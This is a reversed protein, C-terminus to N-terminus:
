AERQSPMRQRADLESDRALGTPPAARRAPEAPRDAAGGRGTPGPMEQAPGPSDAPGPSHSLNSGPSAAASPTDSGAPEAAARRSWSDTVATVADIFRDHTCAAAFAPFLICLNHHHLDLM